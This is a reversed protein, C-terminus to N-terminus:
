TQKKQPDDNGKFSTKENVLEFLKDLRIKTQGM